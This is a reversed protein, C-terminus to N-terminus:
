FALICYFIALACECLDQFHVAVPSTLNVSCFMAELEAELAAGGSPLSEFKRCFGPSWLIPLPAVDRLAPVSTHLLETLDTPSELCGEETVYWALNPYESLPYLKLFERAVQAELTAYRQISLCLGLSFSSLSNILAAYRQIPLCLHCLSNFFSSLSNILTSLSQLCHVFLNLSSIL